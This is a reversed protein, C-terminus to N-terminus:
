RLLRVVGSALALQLHSLRGKWPSAGGDFPLAHQWDPGAVRENFEAVLRRDSSLFFIEQYLLHSLFEFNCTGAILLEDDVLIAKLHTLRGSYLRLEVGSRAAEWPVYHQMERFNNIESTVLRVRVGRSVAARLRGFLPFTLYTSEVFISRRARDIAAVVPAFSRENQRGDCLHFSYEGVQRSHSQNRGEWSALFDDKLFAAVEADEFRFMMDHWNFNHESFNIGGVYVIRDDIVVLKKHNRAPFRHLLFGAPNTFRCSVGRAAFEEPFRLTEARERQLAADGRNGPSHVFRDSVKHRSFEDILVRRDAARSDMIARAVRRGVSDAEFTMAQVYVHGRAPAIDASLERWFAESDVLISANM